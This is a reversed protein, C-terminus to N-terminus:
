QSLKSQYKMIYLDVFPSKNDALAFVLKTHKIGIREGVFFASM